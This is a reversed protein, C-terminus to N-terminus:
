SEVRRQLDRLQLLTLNNYAPMFISFIILDTIPLLHYKFLFHGHLTNSTTLFLIVVAMAYIGFVRMWHKWEHSLVASREFAKFLSLNDLLILPIVLYILIIGYLFPLFFFLYLSILGAFIESAGLNILVFRMFRTLFLLTVIGLIIILVTALVWIFRKMVIRMLTPLKPQAHQLVLNSAVLSVCYFYLFLAVTVLSVGGWIWLNEIFPDLYLFGDKVFVMALLLAFIAKYVPWHLAFAKKLLASFPQPTTNFVSRTM